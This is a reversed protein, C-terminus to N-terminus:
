REPADRGLCRRFSAEGLEAARDWSFTAARPLTAAALRARLSADGLFRLVCDAMAPVDEPDFYLGAEGVVEPLSGRDSSLVPVGCSMAEVAPLGFGEWLSPFVLAATSGFLRVLDADDLYGTFTVHEALPPHAAIHARLEPLNDWFGKGSTSGVIALHLKPRAKIIMPMAKLFGLINKHANMGGVYVLLEADAPIALRARIAAAAAPDALPRFMPDAAETVVDIRRRPIRLFHEMDAASTESVTMARDTQCKALWTKVQWLRHNMRTPFLLHPIREATTDHYCIVCPVRSLLPFYSYVAPFFFLDFRSKRVLRGMSWLYGPSRSRDGVAATNLGEGTAAIVCDAGEPLPWDPVPPQDFVLTYRFESDRAVLAKVFERTFRGFGRDNSWTTADIGVHVSKQKM